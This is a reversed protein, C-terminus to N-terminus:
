LYNALKHLRMERNKFQPFLGRTNQEHFKRTHGQTQPEEGSESTSRETYTIKDPPGQDVQAQAAQFFM